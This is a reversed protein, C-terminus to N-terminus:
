TEAPADTCIGKRQLIEKEAVTVAERLTLGRDICPSDYGARSYNQFSGVDAFYIKMDIVEFFSSLRLM